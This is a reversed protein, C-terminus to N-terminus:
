PQYIKLSKYLKKIDEGSVNPSDGYCFYSIMDLDDEDYIEGLLSYILNDYMLILKTNGLDLGLKLYKNLEENIEQLTLILREFKCYEM